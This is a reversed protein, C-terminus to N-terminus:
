LQIYGAYLAKLVAATINNCELKKFANKLHYLVTNESIGMIASIEWRTKGRASWQLVERERDTLRIDHRAPGAREIEQFATYFQYSILNVYSTTNRDLDVGGASSAAGIAALSGNPGRLPIGIGDRLGAERGQNLCSIQKKSLPSNQILDDWVFINDATHVHCRVPDLELYNNAIYHAMWDPPYNLMIGHGAQRKIQTHDTMLSFIIRDFGLGLMVKKYLAFLEEVSQARNSSEIFEEVRM